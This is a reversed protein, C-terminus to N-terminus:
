QRAAGVWPSIGIQTGRSAVTVNVSLRSMVSRFDTASSPARLIVTEDPWGAIGYGTQHSERSNPGYSTLRQYIQLSYCGNEDIVLRGKSSSSPKAASAKRDGPPDAPM